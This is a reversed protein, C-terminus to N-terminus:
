QEGVVVRKPVVTTEVSLTSVITDVTSSLPIYSPIVTMDVHKGVTTAVDVVQTGVTYVVLTPPILLHQM